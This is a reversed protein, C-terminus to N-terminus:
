TDRHRLITVVALGVSLVVALGIWPFIETM